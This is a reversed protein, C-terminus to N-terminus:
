RAWAGEASPVHGSAGLGVLFDLLTPPPMARLHPTSAELLGAWWDDSGLRARM